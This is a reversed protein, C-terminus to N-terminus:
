KLLEALSPTCAAKLKAVLGAPTPTTPKGAAIQAKRFKCRQCQDGKKCGGKFIAHWICPREGNPVNPASEAVLQEGACVLNPPGERRAVTHTITNAAFTM